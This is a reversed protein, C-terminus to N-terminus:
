ATHSWRRELHLGATTTKGGYTMKKEFSSLILIM